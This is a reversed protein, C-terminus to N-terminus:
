GLDGGLIILFISSGRRAKPWKREEERRPGVGRVERDERRAQAVVQAQPGAARGERRGRRDRGTRGDGQGVAWLGPSDATRRGLM